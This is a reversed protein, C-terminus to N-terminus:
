RAPNEADQHWWEPNAVIYHAIREFEDDRVVHEYYGRQWVRLSPGDSLANIQRTSAAKFGAVVSGPSGAVRRLPAGRAGPEQDGPGSVPGPDRGASGRPRITILGHLHNPMVAFVDIEVEPRIQGTRVWEQEVISGLPNLRMQGDVVEGFLCAREVTCITVFYTGGAAYDHGQWRISHRHHREPDYDMADGGVNCVTLPWLRRQPAGRAGEGGGATGLDM